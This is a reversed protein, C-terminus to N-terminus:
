GPTKPRRRPNGATEAISNIDIPGDFLTERITDTMTQLTNKPLDDLHCPASSASNKDFLAEADEDSVEIYAEGTAVWEIKVKFPM